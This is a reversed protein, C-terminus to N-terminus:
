ERSPEEAGFLVSKTPDQALMESPTHLSVLTKCSGYSYEVCIYSYM